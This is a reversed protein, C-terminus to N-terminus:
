ISCDGLRTWRTEVGFRIRETAGTPHRYFITASIHGDASQDKLHGDFEMTGTVTGGAKALPECTGTANVSGGDREFPGFSCKLEAKWERNLDASSRLAPEICAKIESDDKPLQFPAKDRDIWVDNVVLATLKTERQWRGRIPPNGPDDVLPGCGSILLAGLVAPRFGLAM